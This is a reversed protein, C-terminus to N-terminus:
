LDQLRLVELCSSCAWCLCGQMGQAPVTSAHPSDPRCSGSPKGYLHPAGPGPAGACCRHEVVLPQVACRCHATLLLLATGCMAVKVWLPVAVEQRTM